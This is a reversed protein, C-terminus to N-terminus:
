AKQDRNTQTLVKTIKPQYENKQALKNAKSRMVWVAVFFFLFGVIASTASSSFGFISGLKQGMVAGIILLLIPFVYILFTVKLLSSTKFSLM